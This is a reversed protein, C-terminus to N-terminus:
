PAVNVMTSDILHAVFPIPAQGFLIVRAVTATMINVTLAVNIPMAPGLQAKKAAADTKM